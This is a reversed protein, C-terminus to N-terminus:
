RIAYVLLCFSIYAISIGGGIRWSLDLPEKGIKKRKINTYVIVAIFIGLIMLSMYVERYTMDLFDTLELGAYIAVPTIIFSKWFERQQTIKKCFITTLIALIVSFFIITFLTTFAGFLDHMYGSFVLVQEFIGM